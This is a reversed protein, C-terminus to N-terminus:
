SISSQEGNRTYVPKQTEIARVSKRGGVWGWGDHWLKRFIWNALDGIGNLLIWLLVVVAIAIILKAIPQSVAQENENEDRTTTIFTMILWLGLWKNSFERKNTEIVWRSDGSITHHTHFRTLTFPSLPIGILFLVRPPFASTVDSKGVMEALRQAAWSAFNRWDARKQKWRHRM